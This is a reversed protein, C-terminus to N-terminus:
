NCQVVDPSARPSCWHAGYLSRLLDTRMFLGAAAEGALRRLLPNRLQLQPRHYFLFSFSFPLFPLFARGHTPHTPM